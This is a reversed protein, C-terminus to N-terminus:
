QEDNLVSAIIQKNYKDLNVSENVLSNNSEAVYKGPIPVKTKAGMKYWCYEVDIHGIDIAWYGLKALDYALCTATMGLAILYLDFKENNQVSRIIEDYKDFANTSPCIIRSISEANTFLDNGVGLRSYEGEIICVSQGEWIKKLQPIIRKAYKPSRYDIFFRTCCADLYLQDTDLLKKILSWNRLLYSSLYEFANYKLLHLEKWVHPICSIHRSDKSNLADKLLECIRPNARQFGTDIEQMLKFEGDGFRSISVHHEIIYKVTEERNLINLRKIDRYIGDKIFHYIFYLCYNLRHLYKM